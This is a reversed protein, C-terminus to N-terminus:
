LGQVLKGRVSFPCDILRSATDRVRNSENLGNRYRYTGGRDCGLYITGDRMSSSRIVIAYGNALAHAQMSDIFSQRSAFEFAEPPPALSMKGTDLPLTFTPFPFPVTPSSNKNDLRQGPV